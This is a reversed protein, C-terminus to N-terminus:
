NAKGRRDQVMPAALEAEAWAIADDVTMVSTRDDDGRMSYLVHLEVLREFYKTREFRSM